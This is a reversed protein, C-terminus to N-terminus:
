LETEFLLRVSVNDCNKLSIEYVQYGDIAVGEHRDYRYNDDNRKCYSVGMRYGTVGDPKSPLLEEPYYIYLKPFEGSYNESIYYADKGTEQYSYLAHEWESVSVFDEKMEIIYDSTDPEACLYYIDGCQEISLEYEKVEGRRIDIADTIYMAHTYVTDAFYAGLQCKDADAESEHTTILLETKYQFIMEDGSNLVLEDLNIDGVLKVHAKISSNTLMEELNTGDYYEHFFYYQIGLEEGPVSISHGTELYVDYIPTELYESLYEQFASRIEEEQYNDLVKDTTTDDGEAIVTFTRDMYSMTVVTQPVYHSVPVINEDRGSMSSVVSPTFGYKEEIHSIAIEEAQERWTEAEKGAEENKGCGTLFMCILIVSLIKLGNKKYLV